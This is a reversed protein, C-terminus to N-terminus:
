EKIILQAMMKSRMKNGPLMGYVAKKLIESYGKTDIIKQMTQKRLGSPYGTYHTYIKDSKKKASIDLLSANIIEVKNDSLMNRKFDPTTKGLLLSSVETALRGLKKGSADIIHKTM